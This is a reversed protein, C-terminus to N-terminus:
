KGEGMRVIMTRIRPHSISRQVDLLAPYEDPMILVPELETRMVAVIRRRGSKGMDESVKTNLTIDGSGPVHSRSTEPPISEISKVGEPLLVEVTVISRSPYDRYLPNFREDSTVGAVSVPFGPLFLTLRDEQRVAYSPVSVTFEEVAPYTNCTVMYPSVPVAAKSISSVIEQFRRRQEEPPMERYERCFSAYATGYISRKKTILADGNGKLDITYRDEARNEYDMSSAHITEIMGSELVLAPIGSSPATGIAAYQDTDGLYIYGDGTKIRV